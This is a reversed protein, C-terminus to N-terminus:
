SGSWCGSGADAFYEKKNRIVWQKHEQFLKQICSFIDKNESVPNVSSIQHNSPTVRRTIRQWWSPHVMSWTTAAVLVVISSCGSRDINAHTFMHLIDFIAIHVVGHEFMHNFMRTM